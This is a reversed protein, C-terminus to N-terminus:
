KNKLKKVLKPRHQDEVNGHGLQGHVGWGWTYLKGDKTIALSHFQGCAVAVVNKGELEMIFSPRPYRNTGGCGVQGYKSSGWGYVGQDTIALMHNKGTAVSFVRHHRFFSVRRPESGDKAVNNGEGAVSPVLGSSGLIGHSDISSGLMDKQENLLLTIGQLLKNNATSHPGHGLVGYDPLGWTYLAEGIIVASHSFGGCLVNNAILEVPTNPVENPLEIDKSLLTPIYKWKRKENLKIVIALFVEIFADLSIIEDCFSLFGTSGNAFSSLTPYAQHKKSHWTNLFAKIAPHSPNYLDALRSLISLELNPLMRLVLAMHKHAISPCLLLVQRLEPDSICYLYGAERERTVPLNTPDVNSNKILADIIPSMQKSLLAQLKELHLGRATTLYQLSEWRWCGAMFSLAVVEDYYHNDRLFILLNRLAHQHQTTPPKQHPPVCLQQLHCLIALTALNRREELGLDPGSVGTTLTGQYTLFENVLGQAAFKISCKVHPCRSHKYLAIASAFNRSRLKIDAALEFLKPDLSFIVGLKNASDIDGLKLVLEMFLSEISSRTQCIYLATRTVILCGSPWTHSTSSLEEDEAILAEDRENTLSPLTQSYKKFAPTPFLGIIEQGEPLEVEQIVPNVKSDLSGDLKSSSSFFTSVITIKRREVADTLFIMEDHLVIKDINPVIKFVYLPTTELDTSYVLVTSNEKCHCALLYREKAYQPTALSDLIYKGMSEPNSPIFAPPESNDNISAISTTSTTMTQEPTSSYMVEDIDCTDVGKNETQPRRRTGTKAESLRQKLMQLKEVSMQKLGLLRSRPAPSPHSGHGHFSEGSSDNHAWEPSIHELPFLYQTSRQELVLRWQRDEPGTILLFVTDMSNDRCLHLERVPVTIYTGGVERGSSLEVFSLEGLETGVIALSVDGVITQWWVLATPRARSGNPPLVLVDDTRFRHDFASNPELHSSIPVVFLTGDESAVCLWEATPSFALSVPRRNEEQTWPIRKTNSQGNRHDFIVIDGGTTTIATTTAQPLTSTTVTTFQNGCPSDVLRVVEYIAGVMVVDV